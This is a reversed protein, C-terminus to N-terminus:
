DLLNNVPGVFASLSFVISLFSTESIMRSIPRLPPFFPPFARMFAILESARVANAFFAAAALAVTRVFFAAAFFFAFHFSSRIQKRFFISDAQTSGLEVFLAPIPTARRQVIPQSRFFLNPLCALARKVLGQTRRAIRRGYSIPRLCFAFISFGLGLDEPIL